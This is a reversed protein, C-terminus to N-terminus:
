ENWQHSGSTSCAESSPFPDWKTGLISIFPQTNGDNQWISENYAPIAGMKSIVAGNEV